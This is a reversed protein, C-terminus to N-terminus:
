VLEGEKSVTHTTNETSAQDDAHAEQDQSTINSIAVSADADVSSVRALGTRYLQLARGSDNNAELLEGLAAYAGPLQELEIAKEFYRTAVENNKEQAALRGAALNLQASEPRAMLWGEVVRRLKAPKDAVLKGYFNVLGDDYQKKLVGRVLKEAGSANGQRVMDQAYTLVNDAHQQQEKPLEKWAQQRDPSNVLLARHALTDIQQLVEEPLADVKRALPLLDHVKSWNQMAQYNQLRMAVFQSNKRGQSEIDDLTAEAMENQGAMHHLRAKALGIALKEEPAAKYAAQLYDDRRTFQSQEQAAQAAALYNVYPVSSNDSSAVLSKEARRWDGKILWLYGNGLSQSAKQHGRRRRWRSFVNGARFFSGIIVFGLYILGVLFFLMLLFGVFSMEILTKGVYIKVYNDPHIDLLQYLGFGSVIAIIFVIVWRM